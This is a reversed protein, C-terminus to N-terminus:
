ASVARAATAQRPLAERLELLRLLDTASLLGVVRGGPEVVLGRRGEAGMLVPLVEELTQSAEFTPADALALMTDRVNQRGWTSRPQTAAQRFSVLGVVDGRDLVPYATHRRRLVVEDVFRDLPMDADVSVPERVMVDAAQLGSLAEHVGVAGGEAAAASLLFWGIFAFWLGGLGGGLVTLILGGGILLQGFLRGLGAATRTASGFDGRKSWLVSRLIRGGDLPFAPLLNFALLALNIYGLWHVVANVAPLASFFLSAALFAVGLALSVVPGAAAVRFEAGSSPFDGRFRAVGGFAWLVIGDIAMGERRAQIAHGLEHLLLCAFFVPAAVLAMGLYTGESLAPSAQPFVAKALSWVILAVVVLWSWHIRIEVGAIRGVPLTASM